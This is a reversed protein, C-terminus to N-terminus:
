RWWRAASAGSRDVRSPAGPRKTLDGGAVAEAVDALVSNQEGIVRSVYYRFGLGCVFVSLLLAPGIVLWWKDGRLMPDITTWGAWVMIVLAALSSWTAWEAIRDYIHKETRAPARHAASTGSAATALNSRDGQSM